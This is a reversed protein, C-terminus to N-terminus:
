RVPEDVVADFGDEAILPTRPLVAPVLPHVPVQLLVAAFGRGLVLATLVPQQIPEHLKVIVPPRVIAQLSAVGSFDVRGRGNLVVLPHLGRLM